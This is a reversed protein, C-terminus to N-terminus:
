IGSENLVQHGINRVPHQLELPLFQGNRCCSIGSNNSFTFIPVSTLDHDLFQGFQMVNLTYRTDPNNRDQIFFQSLLRPSPLELGLRSV